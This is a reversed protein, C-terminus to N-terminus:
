PYTRLIAGLSLGGIVLPVGKAQAAERAEFFSERASDYLEKWTTRALNGLPQGHNVLRPCHVACGARYQLHYAIYGMETPSGTLGHLLMAMCNGEAPLFIGRDTLAVPPQPKIWAWEVPM